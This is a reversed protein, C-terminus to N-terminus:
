CCTTMEASSSTFEWFKRLIWSRRISEVEKVGVIHIVADRDRFERGYGIVLSIAELSVLRQQMRRVAHKTLHVRTQQPSEINAPLNGDSAESVSHDADNFFPLNTKAKRM